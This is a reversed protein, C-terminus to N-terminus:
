PQYEDVRWVGNGQHSAVFYYRVGNIIGNRNEIRNGSQIFGFRARGNSLVEFSLKSSSGVGYVDCSEGPGYTGGVGCEGARGSGGGSVTVSIRQTATLGGPDLATVTVTASGAAVPTLTVASGSVSVSVTSQASSRASYTLRDGDPDTFYQAVNVSRAGGGATLTQAPISGTARPPQNTGSDEVTVRVSQSASLDDPDTATISVSASGVAVPTLTLTSGSVSVTVVGSRSSSASYALEDDDPDEFYLSLDVTGPSGGVTLTQAPISSSTPRRNSEDSVWPRSECGGCSLEVDRGGVYNTVALEFRAADTTDDTIWIRFTTEEGQAIRSGRIWVDDEFLLAGNSDYVYAYVTAFGDLPYKHNNRVTGTIYYWSSSPSTKYHRVGSVLVDPTSGPDPGPRSPGSLVVSESVRVLRIDYTLAADEGLDLLLIRWPTPAPGARLGAAAALKGGSALTDVVYHWEGDEHRYQMQARVWEHEPTYEITLEHQQVQEVGRSDPEVTFEGILMQGPALEGQVGRSARLLRSRWHKREAGTLGTADLERAIAHRDMEGPIEVVKVDTQGAAPTALTALLGFVIGFVAAAQQKTPM